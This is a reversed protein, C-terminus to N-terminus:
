LIRGTPHPQFEPIEVPRDSCLIGKTFHVGFFPFDPNPVPYILTDVLHRKEPILEYYEGRLSRDERGPGRRSHAGHPRRLPRRRGPRYYIGFWSTGGNSERRLMLALQRGQDNKATQPIQGIRM